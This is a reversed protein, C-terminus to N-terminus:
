LITLFFPTLTRAFHSFPICNEELFIYFFSPVQENTSCGKLHCILPLKLLIPLTPVMAEGEDDSSTSLREKLDLKFFFSM